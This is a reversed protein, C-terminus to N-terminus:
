PNYKHKTRWYIKLLKIKARPLYKKKSSHADSRMADRIHSAIRSDTLLSNLETISIEAKRPTPINNKYSYFKEVLKEVLLEDLFSFRERIIRKCEQWHRAGDSSVGNTSYFCTPYPDTIFDIGREVASLIWKSDAAIGYSEDYKGVQSYATRPVFLANHCFDPCRFYDGLGTPRPQWLKAKFGNRFKWAGYSLIAEKNRLKKIDSLVKEVSGKTLWDDSNIICIFRGRCYEIGYNIAQYLNRDPQSIYYEIKPSFSKIIQTTGDTSAGDIIIHEISTHQQDIISKITREISQCRNRVVTLFSIEIDQNESEKISRSLRLGGQEMQKCSGEKDALIKRLPWNETDLKNASEHTSKKFKM